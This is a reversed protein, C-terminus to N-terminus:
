RDIEKQKKHGKEVINIARNGNEDIMMKSAKIANKNIYEQVSDYDKRNQLTITYTDKEPQLLIRINSLKQIQELDIDEFSPKFEHPLINASWLVMNVCELVKESDKESFVFRSGNKQHFYRESDSSMEELVTLSNRSAFPINKNSLTARLNDRVIDKKKLNIPINFGKYDISYEPNLEQIMECDSKAFMVDIKMKETNIM